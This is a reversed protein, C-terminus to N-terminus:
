KTHKAAPPDEKTHKAAPPEEKTHKASPPEDVVSANYCDGSNDVIGLLNGIGIIDLNRCTQIALITLNTNGSGPSPFPGYALAPTASVAMFGAGAMLGAIAVRKLM